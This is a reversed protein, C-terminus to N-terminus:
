QNIGRETSEPSVPSVPSRSDITGTNRPAQIFTPIELEKKKKLSEKFTNDKRPEHDTKGINGANKRQIWYKEEKISLLQTLTIYQKETLQGSICDRKLIDLVIEKTIDLVEKSYNGKFCNEVLFQDTRWKGAKRWTDPMKKSSKVATKSERIEQAKSSDMSEKQGNPQMSDKIRKKYDEALSNTYDILIRYEEETFKQQMYTSIYISQQMEKRAQEIRDYNGRMITKFLKEIMRKDQEIKIERSSKQQEM